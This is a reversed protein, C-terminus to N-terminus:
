ALLMALDDATLQKLLTSNSSIIAEALESKHSQLEMIKEEVTDRAIIRYAFVPREQGIRHVRDIAQAEVAPNWWPDLLFVYDAATLNLGSGGAKLSILFAQIDSENQFREVRAQRDTTKGDLYEYVIGAASLRKRVIDLLSTFQSFVLAKHGETVIETLQEILLELKASSKKAQSKDVLGPHCAMQRLRLLAELVHIKAKALGNTAITKDLMARYHDRVQNYQKRQAPPLDCYLHQESKRPLQPLVQAKTRRLLFPALGRQLSKIQDSDDVGGRSLRKLSQSRGLMGPNLFEFLSWLEGLHNEIPTGSLALRHRATIVRAAKASQSQANKIAQAEDLIAYDWPQASLLEIDRRLTGYTTVVVDFESFDTVRQNRDLGTYDVVKIRPSFRDAELKWNYVLSKPAVVLSPLAHQDRALRQKRGALLALVQVTKGLGMDDALCGGFGFKELFRLWGLGQKQYDRLEGRFGPPATASKVGSFSRLKKRLQKFKRDVDIKCDANRAALMSDLLLAQGPQFRLSQGATEGSLEAIPMFRDLWEEPLLGRTGDGLKVFREGSKLATLIEPLSAQQDDFTAAAELDFWDIGSSISLSFHSSRRIETGHAEVSWDADVLQEVVRNIDRAVFQLHGPPSEGYRSPQKEIMGVTTLDALLRRESEPNRAMMTSQDDALWIQTRSNLAVIQSGYDFSVSAYLYDSASRSYSTKFPPHIVLRGTPQPSEFVPQLSDDGVIEVPRGSQHLEELLDGRQAFPIVLENAARLLSVWRADAPADFKALTQPWLVVGSSYCHVPEGLPVVSADRVLQGTIRWLQQSEDREASLRFRWPPGDDWTVTSIEDIGEDVSLSWGLRGTAAVIPLLAGIVEPALTVVTSSKANLKEYRYSFYSGFRDAPQNNSRNSLLLRVLREDEPSDLDDVTHLSVSLPKLKGWSDGRLRQQQYL